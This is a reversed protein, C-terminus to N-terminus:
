EEGGKGSVAKLHEISAFPNGLLNMSERLDVLISKIEGKLVKIEKELSNIREMLEM